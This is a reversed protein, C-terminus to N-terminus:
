SIKSKSYSETPIARLFRAVNDVNDLDMKGFLIKSIEEKKVWFKQSQEYYYNYGTKEKKDMPLKSWLSRTYLYHITTNYLHDKSLDAKYKLLDEYDERNRNDLYKVAKKVAYFLKNDSKIDIIGYKQMEGLGEVIYQTIYRSDPMGQFWPWGGNPAQMRLLKKLAKGKEYSMKNLDFLIGIRRKQDTENAADQVWPTQNLVINKLEENKELNSLFVKSDPLNKWKDFVEKIIPHSNVLYSAFNNAYFRSFLQESCEDPYEM